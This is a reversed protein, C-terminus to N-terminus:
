FYGEVLIDQGYQTYTIDKLTVENGLIKNQLQKFSNLGQGLIKPAIFTLLKDAQHQQVFQSFITTGGEVLVSAINFEGLKKLISEIELHGSKTGPMEVITINKKELKLKKASQKLRRNSAIFLITQALSDQFVKAKEPVNFNGDIIIRVPNRGKADRVTLSPNDNIITNAGVLVADYEARLQHVYKRSEKCTIWQSKGTKDAIKGDLTQAVKLTVFPMNTSIYKIFTKNLKKAENELVCVTVEIGAKRLQKIGKATVRPNPDKMGIVVRAIKSKILLDTCPPTKGHYNCPELNVYITAGEVSEKANNIANVEAHPGGFKKHYGKGIVKGNKVIIAGVMPNPSVYGAGLHALQIVKRMYITDTNLTKTQKM